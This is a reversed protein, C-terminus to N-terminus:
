IPPDGAYPAAAVGFRGRAWAGWVASLPPWADTANGHARAAAVHRALAYLHAGNAEDSALTSTAPQDARCAGGVESPVCSRQVRAAVGRVDAGAARLAVQWVPIKPSQPSFGLPM